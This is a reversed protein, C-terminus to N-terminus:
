SLKKKTECQLLIKVFALLPLLIQLVSKEPYINLLDQMISSKLLVPPLHCALYFVFLGSM